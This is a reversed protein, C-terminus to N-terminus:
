MFVVYCFRTANSIKSRQCASGTFGPFCNCVGSFRDCEGANSCETPQHAMDTSYAKDAWAAGIPCNGVRTPEFFNLELCNSKSTSCDAAGGNWGPFCTCQNAVGCIGHGSCSHPCKSLCPHLQITLLILLCALM